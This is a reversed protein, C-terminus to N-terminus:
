AVFKMSQGQRESEMRGHDLRDEILKFLQGAMNIELGWINGKDRGEQAADDCRRTDDSGPIDSPLAALRDIEKISNLRSLM